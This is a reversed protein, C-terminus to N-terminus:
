CIRHKFYMYQYPWILFIGQKDESLKFFNTPSASEYKINEKPTMKLIYLMETGTAQRYHLFTSLKLM